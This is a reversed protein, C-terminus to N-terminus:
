MSMNRLVHSKPECFGLDKEADKKSTNKKQSSSILKKALGAQDKRTHWSTPGVKKSWPINKKEETSSYM